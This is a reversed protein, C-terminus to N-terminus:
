AELALCAWNAGFGFNFLLLSDGARVRGAERADKLNIFNDAAIVHGKGAINDAFLRDIPLGLLPLLIQWSRLSVNHPVVLAVDDAGIDLHQLMERLLTRATPFYAAVLENRCAGPSWYYGKAIQRHAVIRNRPANREVLVACAGDSIVNYIIERPAGEPLVDASVCVVRNADPHARLHDGALAVATMLGTCGAQSIGIAPARSFGAEYLLRSAPYTFGELAGQVAVRHSQPIAGAYVLLDISDPDIATEGVLRQLAALALEDAPCDSVHAGRFGFEEMAAVPSTLLGRADLEGLSLFAPPLVYSIATLGVPSDQPNV